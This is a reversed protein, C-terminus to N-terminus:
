SLNKRHKNHMEQVMDQVM